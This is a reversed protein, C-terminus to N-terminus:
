RFLGWALSWRCLGSDMYPCVWFSHRLHIRARRKVRHPIWSCLTSLVSSTHGFISQIYCFHNWRSGLWCNQIGNTPIEIKLNIGSQLNLILVFVYNPNWLESNFNRIESKLNRIESKLHWIEPKLHWIEPRLYWTEPKLNWIEPKMNWIEYKMNWIESKMNWIESKMNWTEYKLNWIEAKLNWFEPKLNWIEPKLNWIQPKLNWIESEWKPSKPGPSISPPRRPFGAPRGM